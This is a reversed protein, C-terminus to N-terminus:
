RIYVRLISTHLMFSRQHMRCASVWYGLPATIGTADEVSMQM